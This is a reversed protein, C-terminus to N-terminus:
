ITSEQENGFIQTYQSEFFQLEMKSGDWVAYSSAYMWEGLNFYLSRGNKCRYRIPLHRHGFVFFDIEQAQSTEDAFIALWEKTAGQYVEQLGPYKREKYSVRKMISIAITPHIISFLRQAIRSRFIAKIIKYTHDGPGLGDGHGVFFQRGDITHVVPDRYTAIGLSKELYEFMWMDHNGTFFYVEIGMDRLEALKGLFRIYGKPVTSRYEYWYDFVDGVLYITKADSKILDLWRVIKLERAESSEHNVDLGLHFDSAFYTKSRNPYTM